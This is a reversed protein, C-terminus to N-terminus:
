GKLRFANDISGYRTGFVAYSGRFDKKESVYIKLGSKHTALTYKEGIKKNEFIQKEM